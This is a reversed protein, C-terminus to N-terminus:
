GTPDFTSRHSGHAHAQEAGEEAAFTVDGIFGVRVVIIQAMGPAHGNNHYAEALSVAETLAGAAFYSSRVACGGPGFGPFSYDWFTIQYVSRDETWRAPAREKEKESALGARAPLPKAPAQSRM